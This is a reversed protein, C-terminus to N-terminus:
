SVLYADIKPQCPYMAGVFIEVVSVADIPIWTSTLDRKSKSILRFPVSEIAIV